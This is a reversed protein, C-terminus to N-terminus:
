CKNCSSGEDEYPNTVGLKINDDDDNLSPIKDNDGYTVYRKNKM